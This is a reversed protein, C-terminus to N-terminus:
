DDWKLERQVPAEREFIGELVDQGVTKALTPKIPPVFDSTWAHMGGDTAFTVRSRGSGASCSPQM